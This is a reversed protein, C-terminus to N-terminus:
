RGTSRCDAKESRARGETGGPLFRRGRGKEIFYGLVARMKSVDGLNRQLLDLAVPELDARADRWQTRGWILTARPNRTM